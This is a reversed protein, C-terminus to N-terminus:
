CTLQMHMIKNPKKRLLSILSKFSPTPAIITIVCIVFMTGSIALGLYYYSQPQYYLTIEFTGNHNSAVQSPDIYWANVYGNVMYHDSDPLAKEFLHNVDGPTFSTLSNAEQVGVASYNAIINGFITKDNDPYAKWQPDYSESFILFFPQTANQIKIQYNTPNIEKFIIKPTADTTNFISNQTYNLLSDWQNGITESSIFFANNTTNNNSIISPLLLDPSGQILTINSSPYIHPLFYVSSLNYLDFNPYSQILSIYGQDQLYNIKGETQNVFQSDVDKHYILYQVNYLSMLKIIWTCNNNSAFNWKQWFPTNAGNAQITPKTFIQGTPDVGVDKWKPYNAWGVSNLVAYPLSLIKDQRGDQSLMKAADFYDNPIHVLYSNSSTLYDTGNNFSFSYRSQIGGVFFPYVGILVLIFCVLVFKRFHVKFLRNLKLHLKASKSFEIYRNGAYIDRLGIFIFILFFFPLFVLTKDPSRLTNLVPLTFLKLALANSIVGQGKATIFISILALFLFSLSLKNMKKFSLAFMALFGISGLVFFLSFTSVSYGVNPVLFLQSIITTRQYLIWAGLNFLSASSVMTTLGYFMGEVNTIVTWMTAVFFISLYAILKYLLKGKNLKLVLMFLLFLLTFLVLSIYFAFNGFAINALFFVVGLGLLKKNFVNKGIFYSYTLSFIMPLLPYLILYPSYGWTYTFVYLTYPNLAYIISIILRLEFSKTLNRSFRKSAVFFSVFSGSLFIFFFLFSQSSASVNLISLIYFPLYFVSYSFYQLFGGPGSASNWTFLFNSFNNKLNIYQIIDGGSFVYGKPFINIASVFVILLLVCLFFIKKTKNNKETIIKANLVQTQDM